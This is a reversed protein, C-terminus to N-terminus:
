GMILSINLHNVGVSIRSIELIHGLHGLNYSISTLLQRDVLVDKWAKLMRNLYRVRRRIERLKEREILM